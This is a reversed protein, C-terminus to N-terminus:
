PSSAPLSIGAEKARRELAALFFRGQLSSGEAFEARALFERAVEQLAALELPAITALLAVKDLEERLGDVVVGVRTPASGVAEVLAQYLGVVGLASLEARSAVVLERTVAVGLLQGRFLGIVFMRGGLAGAPPPGEM